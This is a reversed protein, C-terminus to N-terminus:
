NNRKKSFPFHIAIVLDNELSNHIYKQSLNIKTYWFDKISVNLVSKKTCFIRKFKHKVYHQLNVFSITYDFLQHSTRILAKQYVFM